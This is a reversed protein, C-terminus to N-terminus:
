PPSALHRFSAPTSNASHAEAPRPARRERSANRQLQLGPRRRRQQTPAAAALRRQHPHDVPQHHRRRTPAPPPWARALPCQQLQPPRDPVHDLLGPQKRVPRHLPVHPQRQLKRTAPLFSTCLWPQRLHQLQRPEIAPSAPRYGHCNLPPCRCRTPSARASAPSGPTSSISSGNPASSGIVRASICVMSRSRSPRTRFVTRSTVCSRSSASYRAELPHTTQSPPLTTASRALRSSTLSVSLTAYTRCYTAATRLPPVAAHPLEQPQMRRSIPRSVNSCRQSVINAINSAAALRAAAPPTASAAHAAPRLRHDRHRFTIWTIGLRAKNPSSSGTGHSPSLAARSAIRASVPSHAAASEASCTHPYGCRPDPAPPRPRHSPSSPCPLPQPLHLQRQARADDQGPQPRCRHRAHPHRRDRRRDARTPQSLQDKAPHRRDVVPQHQRPRDRRRQQRQAASPPGPIPQLFRSQPAYPSSYADPQERSKSCHTKRSVAHAGGRPDRTVIPALFKVSCTTSPSSSACSISATDPLCRLHLPPEVQRPTVKALLRQHTPADIAIHFVRPRRQRRDQLLRQRWSPGPATNSCPALRKIRRPELHPHLRPQPEFIRKRHHHPPRIRVPSCASSRDASRLRARPASAAPPPTHTGPAAPHAQRARSATRAATQAAAPSPGPAARDPAPQLGPRRQPPFEVSPGIRANPNARAPRHGASSEATHPPAAPAPPSAACAGPSVPPSPGAQGALHRRLFHLRHVIGHVPLVLLNAVHHARKRSPFPSHHSSGHSRPVNVSTSATRRCTSCASSSATSSASRQHATSLSASIPARGNPIAGTANWRRCMARLRSRRSVYASPRVNISACNSASRLSSASGASASCTICSNRAPSCCAISRTRAIEGSVKSCVRSTPRPRKGEVTPPRSTCQASCVCRCTPCAIVVALTTTPRRARGQLSNM